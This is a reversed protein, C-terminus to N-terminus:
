TLWYHSSEVRLQHRHHHHRRAMVSLASSTLMFKANMQVRRLCLLSINIKDSHVTSTPLGFIIFRSARSDRIRQDIYVAAVM